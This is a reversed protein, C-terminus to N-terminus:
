MACGFTPLIHSDHIPRLLVLATVNSNGKLVHEQIVMGRRVYHLIEGWADNGSM